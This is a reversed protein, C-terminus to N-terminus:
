IGTPIDIFVAELGFKEALHYAVAEVGFIETAYHGAFLVNIKLENAMHFASHKPEGTILLDYKKNLGNHGAAYPIAETGSGTVILVSQIADTGFPLLLERTYHRISSIRKEIAILSLPKVFEGSIGIAQKRYYFDPKIKKLELFKGLMAANGFEINGDLPLHSAYLSCKNLILTRIKEGCLGNIRGCGEWFLGHHVILFDIDQNVARKFVELGSDVSYGIRRVPSDADVQLGNLSSDEYSKIELLVDLYESLLSATLSRSATALIEKKTKSHKEADKSLTNNRRKKLIDKSSNKRPQATYNQIKSHSAKSSPKALHKKKL